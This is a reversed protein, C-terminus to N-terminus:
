NMNFCVIFSLADPLNDKVEIIVIKPIKKLVNLKVFEM